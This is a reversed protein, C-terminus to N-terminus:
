GKKKADKLLDGITLGGKGGKNAGTVHPAPGGDVKELLTIGLQKELRKALDDSPRLHNSEIQKLQPVRASVKDGLAAHDWKRSERARRVRTGFDDVLDWVEEKYIDRSGMRSARRELNQTVAAKSGQPAPTDLPTGYRSCCAGLAMVTGDVMHRRASVDKGCMECTM